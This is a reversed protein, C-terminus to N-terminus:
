SLSTKEDANAKRSTLLEGSKKRLEGIDSMIKNIGYYESFVERCDDCLRKMIESHRDIVARKAEESVSLKHVAVDIKCNKADLLRISENLSLKADGIKEAAAELKSIEDTNLKIDKSRLESRQREVDAIRKSIEDLKSAKESDHNRMRERYDHEQKNLMILKSQLALMQKEQDLVDRHMAQYMDGFVAIDFLKEVFEKKDSKKLDYFNYTQNSTLFVTRLFIPMDCALVEKEIFDQTEAISSKTINEGGRYLELYSFKGKNLGRVIRYGTDDVDLTLVLRMDKDPAFRNVINENHKVRSQVEGFLAYTLASFVATKGSGNTENNPLDDNKGRVLTMGPHADFDFTEDEFSMFSHIELRRFDIRM